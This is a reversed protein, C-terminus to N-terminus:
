WAISHRFISCTDGRYGYLLEDARRHNSRALAGRRGAPVHTSGALFEDRSGGGLPLYRAGAPIRVASRLSAIM